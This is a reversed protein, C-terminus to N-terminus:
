GPPPSHRPPPRFPRASLGGPRRTFASEAALIELVLFGLGIGAQGDEQAVWSLEDRTMPRHIATYAKFSLPTAIYYPQGHSDDHDTFVWAAGDSDFRIEKDANPGDDLETALVQHLVGRDYPELARIIRDAAPGFRVVYRM